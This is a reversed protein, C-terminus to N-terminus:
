WARTTGGEPDGGICLAAFIALGLAVISGPMLWKSRCLAMKM